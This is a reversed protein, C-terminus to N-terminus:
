AAARAALPAEASQLWARAHVLSQNVVQHMDLYQYTGCRGIFSIGPAADALAKYRAYVAQYRGDCTKVPYYRELDNALYDCPEERTVTTMAGTKMVGDPATQSPLLSWDTERTLPGDDASTPLPTVSLPTRAKPLPLKGAPVRRVTVLDTAPM